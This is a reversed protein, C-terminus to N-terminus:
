HDSLTEAEVADARTEQFFTAFASTLARQLNKVASIETYSFVLGGCADHTNWTVGLLSINSYENSFVFDPFSLILVLLLPFWLTVRM